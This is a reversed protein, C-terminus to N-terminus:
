LGGRNPPMTRGGGREALVGRERDAGSGSPDGRATSASAARAASWKVSRELDGFDAVTRILGLPLMGAARAAIALQQMPMFLGEATPLMDISLAFDEGGLM